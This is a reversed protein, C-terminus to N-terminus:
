GRDRKPPITAHRQTPARDHREDLADRSNADRAVTGCASCRPEEDAAEFLLRCSPCRVLRKPSDTLSCWAIMTLRRASTPSRLAQVGGPGM